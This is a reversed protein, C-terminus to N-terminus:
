NEGIFPNLIFFSALRNAEKIKLGFLIDIVQFLSYADIRIEEENLLFVSYCETNSFNFTYMNKTVALIYNDLSFCFQHQTILPNTSSDIFIFRNAYMYIYYLDSNFHWCHTPVEINRNDIINLKCSYVRSLVEYIDM